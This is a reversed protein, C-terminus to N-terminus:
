IRIEENTINKERMKFEIVAPISFSYFIRNIIRWSHEWADEKTTYFSHTLFSPYLILRNFKMEFDYVTECIKNDKYIRTGGDYESEINLYVLGAVSCSETTSALDKSNSDEHIGVISNEVSLTSASYLASDLTIRGYSRWSKRFLKSESTDEFSDIIYREILEEVFFKIQALCYQSLEIRQSTLGPYHTNDMERSLMYPTKEYYKRVAIPYMYFDDVYVVHHGIESIYDVHIRDNINTTNIRFINSDAIVPNFREFNSLISSKPKSLEDSGAYYSEREYNKTVLSHILKIENETFRM